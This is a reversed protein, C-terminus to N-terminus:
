VIALSRRQRADATASFYAELLKEPATELQLREALM